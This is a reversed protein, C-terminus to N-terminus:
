TDLFVENSLQLMHQFVQRTKGKEWQGIFIYRFCIYGFRSSYQRLRPTEASISIQFFLTRNLVFSDYFCMVGAQALVKNGTRTETTRTLNTQGTSTHFLSEPHKDITLQPTAFFNFCRLTSSFYNFKMKPQLFFYERLFKPKCRQSATTKLLANKQTHAKTM